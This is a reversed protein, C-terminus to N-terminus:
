FDVGDGPRPLSLEVAGVAAPEYLARYNHLDAVVQRVYGRTERFAMTEVFLDVPLNGKEQVWKLVSRPGANYAAAVLVPHQFRKQLESVYWAALRINLDPAFLEDAEPARMSLRRAIAEATPPIIQMLGRANAHSAVEARFASERRMVAWLLYPDTGRAKAEAVVAPEFARPYFLALAEPRRETFAAGWLWRNALEYAQGFYGLRQLATGLALAQGASRVGRARWEVEEEADGELGARRLAEVLELSVPPAPAATGGGALAPLPPPADRGLEALRTRALHAYFSTPFESALRELAPAVQEPGSGALQAARAAWYLAQPVLTSRPTDAVLAEAAGRADAYRGLRLLALARFWQVEDRRRSRPWRKQFDEFARVADEFRDDRLALWGVYYGAEEAFSTRPGAQVVEQMLQGTRVNDDSKLARRARLLLAEAATEPTGRRAEEVRAGAAEDAKMAYLARAAVLAVKAMAPKGRALKRALIVEVEQVAEQPRADALARARALRQEFTLARPGAQELRELAEAGYPHLPHQVALTVLDRAGGERDGTAMRAQARQWYLPASPRDRVAADLHPLAARADGQALLAEGLRARARGALAPPAAKLAAAFHEAARARDGAYFAAQGSYYAHYAELGPPAPAAALQERAGAADASSLRAVGVRLSLSPLDPCRAAACAALDAEARQLAEPRHMQPPTQEQAGAAAAWLAAGALLAARGMM